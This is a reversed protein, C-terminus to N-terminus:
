IFVQELVPQHHFMRICSVTRHVCKYSRAIWIKIRRWFFILTILDPLIVSLSAHLICPSSSFHIFFIREITRHSFSSPPYRRIYSLFLTSFRIKCCSPAMTHVPNLWSFVQGLALSMDVSFRLCFDSNKQYTAGHNKTELEGLKSRDYQM